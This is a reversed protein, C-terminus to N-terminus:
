QDTGGLHQKPRNLKFHEFVEQESLTRDYIALEDLEGNFSRKVPSGPHLQGVHLRLGSPPVSPDDARGSLQGNLYLRMESGDKVAVVHQWERIDYPQESYCSTGMSSDRGPPNRHLFRLQGPRNVTDFEQNPLDTPGCVSVFVGSNTPKESNGTLVGLLVMTGLHEKEPKMWFELSYNGTLPVEQARDCVVVLGSNASDFSIVGNRLGNTGTNGRHIKGHFSDAMDNRVTTKDTSTEFRWYIIPEAKRVAAVYPPTAPLLRVFRNPAIEVEEIRMGGDLLSVRVSKDKTLSIRQDSDRFQAEVKGKFVQVEAALQEDVSVGFETGLDVITTLPTEVTFGIASEPVNGVLKGAALRVRDRSLLEITAPSEILVKAGGDFVLEVVGHVLEYHGQVLRTVASDSLQSDSWQSEFSGTITAVQASIPPLEPQVIRPADPQPWLKYVLLLLAAVTVYVASWPIFIPEPRRNVYRREAEAIKKRRAAEAAIKRARETEEFAAQCRDVEEAEALLELIVAPNVGPMDQEGVSGHSWRLMAQMVVHSMCTKRLEPDKELLKALRATGLDGLDGDILRAIDLENPDHPRSEISM